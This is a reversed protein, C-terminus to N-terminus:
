YPHLKCTPKDRQSTHSNCIFRLLIPVLAWPRILTLHRGPFSALKAGGHEFRLDKPLLHVTNFFTSTVNNLSKPAGATIWRGPFQPFQEPGRCTSVWANLTISCYRWRIRHAWMLSDGFCHEAGTEEAFQTACRNQRGHMDEIFKTDSEYLLSFCGTKPFRTKVRKIHWRFHDITTWFPQRGRLAYDVIQQSHCSPKKAVFVVTLKVTRLWHRIAISGRM